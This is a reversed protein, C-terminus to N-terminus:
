NEKYSIQMINLYILNGDHSPRIDLSLFSPQPSSSLSVEEQIIAKTLCVEGPDPSYTTLEAKGVLVGSYSPM